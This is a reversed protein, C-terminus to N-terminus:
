RWRRRKGQQREVGAVEEGVRRVSGGGGRESRLVQVVNVREVRRHDVAKLVVAGLDLRLLALRLDGLVDLEGGLHSVSGHFGSGGSRSGAHEPPWDILVTTM